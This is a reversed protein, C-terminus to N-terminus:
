FVYNVVNVNFNIIIDLVSSVNVCVEDSSVGLIVYLSAYRRYIITYSSYEM